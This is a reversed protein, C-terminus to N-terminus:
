PLRGATRRALAAEVSDGFGADVLRFHEVQRRQITEPVGAMSSALNAALRAREGDDMRRYLASAQEYDGLGQRDDFRMADGALPLAPEALRRDPRPGGFSNPEYYADTRAPVNLRM